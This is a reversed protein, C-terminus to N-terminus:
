YDNVARCIEAFSQQNPIDVDIHLRRSIDRASIIGRIQKSDVDTVLCHQMCEAKLLDIFEAITLTDLWYENLAKLESRTIMLDDVKLLSRDYGQQQKVMLQQANLEEQSIQGILENNKVVLIAHMHTKEMLHLAEWAFTDSEIVLPNHTKFDTFVERVPSSLSVEFFEEPKVLHM